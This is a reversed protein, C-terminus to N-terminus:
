EKFPFRVIVIGSGGNGGVGNDSKRKGGGGGNGTNAAGASKGGGAGGTAYTTEVGTLGGVISKLTTNSTSVGTGGAAFDIDGVGTGVSGFGGGGATGYPSLQGGNNGQGTTGKGNKNTGGGGGSGGTKGTGASNENHHGGGGGGIAPGIITNTSQTISSNSGNSGDTANSNGGQGGGGVTVTYTTVSLSQTTAMVVGGAGGGCGAWGLNDAGSNGGWGGGGGGAVVLAQVKSGTPARTVVLKKDTDPSSTTTVNKFIHVEDWAATDVTGSMVFQVSSGGTAMQKASNDVKTFTIKYTKEPTASNPSKVTFEVAKGGSTIDAAGVTIQSTTNSVNNIVPEGISAGKYTFAATISVKVPISKDLAFAPISSTYNLVGGSVTENIKAMVSGYKATIGTINVVGANWKAYVDKDEMVKGGTFPTGTGEADSYWGEFGWDPRTPPTPLSVAAYGPPDIASVNPETHVGDNWYFNVRYHNPVWNPSVTIDGLIVTDSSLADETNNGGSTATVYWAGNATYHLKSGKGVPNIEPLTLAGAEGTYEVEIPAHTTAGDQWDFTIKYTDATWKAYATIDTDAPLTAGSVLEREASGDMYWWKGDAPKYHPRAGIEPLEGELTTQGAGSSLALLSGSTQGEYPTFTVLAAGAPRDQWLAYVTTSDKELVTEGPYFRKPDAAAPVGPWNINERKDTFWGLFGQYGEPASSPAKAESLRATNPTDKSYTFTETFSGNGDKNKGGNFDFVVSWDDGKWHGYVTTDEAVESSSTFVEGGSIDTFWTTVSPKEDADVPHYHAPGGSVAPISKVTHVGNGDPLAQRTIGAGGGTWYPIFTVIKADPHLEQWWAYLIVSGTIKTGEAFLNASPADEDSKLYPTPEPPEPEPVPEPVSDDPDEGNGPYEPDGESLLPQENEEPMPTPITYWGILIMGGRQIHASSPLNVTGDDNIVTDWFDEPISQSLWEGGQTKFE